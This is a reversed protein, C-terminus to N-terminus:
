KIEIGQFDNRLKMQSYNKKKRNTTLKEMMQFDTRNTYNTFIMIKGDYLHMENLTSWGIYRTSMLGGGGVLKINLKIIGRMNNKHRKDNMKIFKTADNMRM